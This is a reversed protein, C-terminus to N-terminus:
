RSQLRAPSAPRGSCESNASFSIRLRQRQTNDGVAGFRSGATRNGAEGCCLLQPHYCGAVANCESIASFSIRLRRRQPNDGVAGFRNGATRNGAEGCHPLQPHYCGAFASILLPVEKQRILYKIFSQRQIIIGPM